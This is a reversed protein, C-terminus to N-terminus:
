TPVTRGRRGKFSSGWKREGSNKCSWKHFFDVVSTKRTTGFQYLMAAERACDASPAASLAEAHFCPAVNRESCARAIQGCLAIGHEAAFGHRAQPWSQSLWQGNVSDRSRCRQRQGFFRSPERCRSAAPLLERHSHFKRGCQRQRSVASLWERTAVAYVVGSRVSIRYEAHM